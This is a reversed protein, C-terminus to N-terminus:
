VAKALIKNLMKEYVEARTWAGEIHRNQVDATLKKGGWDQKNNQKARNALDRNAQAQRGCEEMLEDLLSLRRKIEAEIMNVQAQRTRSGTVVLYAYANSLQELLEDIPATRAQKKGFAM